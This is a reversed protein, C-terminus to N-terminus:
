RHIRALQRSLGVLRDGSDWLEGDEELYGDVLFRTRFSCRLWGPAPRGRVHVTFELTPVWVAEAVNAIAPPFSDAFLPMSWTDPERGDAFRIWGEALAVGSPAGRAWGASEPTLRLDFRDLIPPRGPGGEVRVCADPPPLDPPSGTVLTAGEAARLDGLTATVVYRVEGAQHVRATGTSLSNGARLVETAVEVPGPDTRSLFHTTVSLPDPHPLAERLAALGVSALYGGNPSGAIGWGDGITARWRGPGDARVATDEDFEYRGAPDAVSM